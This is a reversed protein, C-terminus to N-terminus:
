GTSKLASFLDRIEEDAEAETRTYTAVEARLLRQYARRATVLRNAVEKETLGLETALARQAPAEAGELIPAIMLRHFIEYHAHREPSAYEAQLVALVRHVVTMAWGRLFAREPTAHDAPLIAEPTEAVDTGVFGGKPHRFQARSARHANAAYHQLASLMLNRFRGRSADAKEFLRQEMAHLFFDQVLDEAQGARHGRGELFALVPARYRVFLEGLVRQKEDADGERLAALRVWDTLPFASM